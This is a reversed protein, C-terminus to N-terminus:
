VRGLPGDVARKRPSRRKKKPTSSVAPQLSWTPRSVESPANRLRPIQNWNRPKPMSISTPGGNSSVPLGNAHGSMGESPPIDGHSCSPEMRSTLTSVNEESQLTHFRSPLVKVATDEPAASHTPTPTPSHSFLFASTPVEFGSHKNNIPGTTSPASEIPAPARASTTQTAQSASRSATQESLIPSSNITQLCQELVAQIPIGVPLFSSTTGIPPVEVSATSAQTGRSVGLLASRETPAPSSPRADVTQLSQEPLETVQIPAPLFSEM